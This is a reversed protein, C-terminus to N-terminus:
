ADRLPKPRTYPRWQVDRSAHAKLSFLFDEPMALRRAMDEDIFPEDRPPVYVTSVLSISANAFHELSVFEIRPDCGPAVPVEYIVVEHRPGYMAQLVESLIKINDHNGDRPYDVRGVAGVQWLIMPVTVDTRRRRVLFDTADLTLCGRRGPDIGLDAFLCDAASIGPLMRADFGQERARVIAEIAPFVVVGPHGYFAACVHLGRRVFSLIREIMALYAELRSARGVSCDSLSESTANAARLWQVTSEDAVLYLVKEATAVVRSADATIQGGGGFGTGVVTLSGRNVDDGGRGAIVAVPSM